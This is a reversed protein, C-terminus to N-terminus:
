SPLPCLCPLHALRSKSSRTWVAPECSCLRRLFGTGLCRSLGDRRRSALLKTPGVRRSFRAQSARVIKRLQRQGLICTSRGQNIKEYGCRYRCRAEFCAAFMPRAKVAICRKPAALTSNSTDIWYGRCFVKTRRQGICDASWFHRRQGCSYWNGSWLNALTWAKREFHSPHHFYSVHELQRDVLTM